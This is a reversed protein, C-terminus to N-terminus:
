EGSVLWSILMDLERQGESSLSWMSNVKGPRVLSVLSAEFEFSRKRHMVEISSSVM